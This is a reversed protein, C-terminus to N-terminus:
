EGPDAQPQAITQKLIGGGSPANSAQSGPLQQHCIEVCNKNMNTNQHSM